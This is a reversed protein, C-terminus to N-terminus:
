YGIYLYNISGDFDRNISLYMSFEDFIQLQYLVVEIIREDFPMWDITIEISIDKEIDVHERNESVRNELISRVRPVINLM